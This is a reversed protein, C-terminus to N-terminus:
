KLNNEKKLERFMDKMVSSLNKKMNDLQLQFDKRIEFLELRLKDNEEGLEFIKDSLSQNREM